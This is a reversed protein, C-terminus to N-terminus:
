GEQIIYAPNVRINVDSVPSETYRAFSIPNFYDIDCDYYVIGYQYNINSAGPDFHRIRNQNDCHEIIDIVEMQTPLVGIERNAPSFYLALKEKALAVLTDAVDQTVKQNPTITGIVYFPFIRVPAFQLEVSLAQLPKYDAIVNDIFLQPPTYRIFKKSNQDSFKAYSIKGAGFDSAKFDNHIAFCMATYTKFNTAFIYKEPDNPDFTLDLASKWDIDLNGAQFDKYTIYKKSKQLPTLNKDNYIALNIELAKQCDIVLGADVGPERNLFRNFDPLTILSDWTNIYNRSRLYAEHGTEPSDGTVTSTNPLEVTNALNTISISDLSTVEGNSDLPSNQAFLPNSLVDKGICGITGSCDIWFVKLWVDEYDQLQDLYNSVQIQANSYNDYVVAFRPEPDSFEAPSSVQIWQTNLYNESDQSVTAKMWVATTDVHQSPLTFKYNSAKVESVRKYVYRLQGEIAARTVSEGPDLHVKDTDVFIDVNGSTIERKSRTGSTGYSTSLPIVNYNITRSQGTIDTYTNLTTFNAGNFGFDLTIEDDTQNTFTVETRAATYFSLVYGILGLIKEANKRQIVSPAYIENAQYDLNTALVDAASAFYKALIVGPDSQSEPTWKEKDTEPKWLETLIPVLKLFENLLSQYDRSTYSILGRNEDIM